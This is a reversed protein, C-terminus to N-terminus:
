APAGGDAPAADHAAVPQLPIPGAPEPVRNGFFHRRLHTVVGGTTIWWM